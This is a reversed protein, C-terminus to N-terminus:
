SNYISDSLEEESDSDFDETFLYEVTPSPM